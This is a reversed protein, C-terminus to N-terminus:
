VSAKLGASRTAQNRKRRSALGLLGLGVLAISGPEPVATNPLQVNVMHTSGSANASLATYLLNNGADFFSVNYVDRFSCCEARGYISFSSLEAPAALTITLNGVTSPANHYMYPFSLRTYEGDIAKDPTSNHDWSSSTTSAVAGASALAVNNGTGTQFAQFESVQLHDNAADTIVISNVNILGAQASSAVASTVVFLALLISKTM